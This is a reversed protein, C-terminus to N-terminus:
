EQSENQMVADIATTGKQQLSLQLREYDAQCQNQATMCFTQRTELGGVSELEAGIAMGVPSFRVNRNEGAVAEITDPPPCLDYSVMAFTYYHTPKKSKNGMLRFMDITKSDFPAIPVTGTEVNRRDRGGSPAVWIITGGVKLMSLLANMAKLNQKQKTPKTEPDADIHKKSHICLLNRGMSFPIALPDTTVKHGAVFILKSAIQEFGALELCASVVQPDAESQHNAFLVVNDGALLQEQIQVLHTTAGLVNVDVSTLDMCSRFFNCGLGYFDIQDFTEQTGDLSTHSVNFTFFDPSNPLGYKMGYQVGALFRQAASKPDPSAKKSPITAHNQIATSAMQSAIIYETAFHVLLSLMNKSQEKMSAPLAKALTQILQELAQEYAPELVIQQHSSSPATITAAATATPVVDAAATSVTSLHLKMVKSSLQLPRQLLSSSSTPTMLVWAEAFNSSMQALLTMITTCIRMMYKKVTANKM